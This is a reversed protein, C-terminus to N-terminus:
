PARRALGATEAPKPSRDNTAHAEAAKTSAEEPPPGARKHQSSVAQPSAAAQQSATVAKSSVAGASAQGAQEPGAQQAQVLEAFAPFGSCPLGRAFRLEASDTKRWAEISRGTINRVYNRTERPM